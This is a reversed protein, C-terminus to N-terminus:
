TKDKLSFPFLKLKGIENACPPDNFTVCIENFDELHLYPSESELGHFIPLLTIQM